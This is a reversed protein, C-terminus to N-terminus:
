TVCAVLNHIFIERVLKLYDVANVLKIKNLM